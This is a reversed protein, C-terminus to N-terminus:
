GVAVGDDVDVTSGVGVNVAVTAGLGVAVSVAVMSGLAVDVNVSVGVGVHVGVIVDVGLIVGLGSTPKTYSLQSRKVTGSLMLSPMALGIIAKMLELSWCVIPFMAVAWGFVPTSVKYKTDGALGPIRM